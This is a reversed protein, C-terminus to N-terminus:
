AEKSARPKTFRVATGTDEKFYEPLEEGEPVLSVKADLKFTVWSPIGADRLAKEAKAKYLSDLMETDVETKKSDYLSFSYGRGGKIKTEGTAKMLDTVKSKIFEITKDIASMERSVYDKEAKLSKKKDEKAKLWGGLLDIGDTNLLDRLSSIREEMQETEETVEGENEIYLEELAYMAQDLNALVENMEKYDM